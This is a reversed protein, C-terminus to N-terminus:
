GGASRLCKRIIKVADERESAVQWLTDFRNWYKVVRVPDVTAEIDDELDHIALLADFLAVTAMPMSGCQRYSESGFVRLSLGPIKDRAAEILVEEQEKRSSASKCVPFVFATESLLVRHDSAPKSKDHNLVLKSLKSHYDLFKQTLSRDTSSKGPAATSHVFDRLYKESQLVAPIMYTELWRCEASAQTTAVIGNWRSECYEIPDKASKIDFPMDSLLQDIGDFDGEAAIMCVHQARLTDNGGLPHGGQNRAKIAALMAKSYNSTVNDNRKAAPKPRYIGNELRYIAMKSDVGKLGMKEGHDALEAHSINLLGRYKAMALISYSPIHKGKFRLLPLSAVM